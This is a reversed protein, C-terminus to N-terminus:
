RIPHRGLEGGKFRWRVLFIQFIGLIALFSLVFVFGFHWAATSFPIYGDPFLPYVYDLIGYDMLYFVIFFELVMFFAQYAFPWDQDWNFRQIQIYLVDLVLGLVLILTIFLFPYYFVSQTFPPPWQWASLYMAYLFTVPLGIFVYLLLRTHWRGLLTPIM